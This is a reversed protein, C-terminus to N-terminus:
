GFIPVVPYSRNQLRTNLAVRRGLTKRKDDSVISEGRRDKSHGSAAMALSHGVFINRQLQETMRHPRIGLKAMYAGPQHVRGFPGFAQGGGQKHLATHAEGWSLAGLLENM